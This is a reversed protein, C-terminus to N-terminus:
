EVQWYTLNEYSKYREVVETLYTLIEKKQDEWMLNKAWDPIHCEPWRPLRRGIALIVNANRKKAENMQFDLDTFSFNENEPEIMPWYAVLRLKKVQLEDLTSIFIEKWSLGLEEAYPKSFTVGYSISPPDEGRSLLFLVLTALAICWFLRPLTKRIINM